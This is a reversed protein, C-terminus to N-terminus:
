DRLYRRLLRLGVYVVVGLLALGGVLNAPTWREAERVAALVPRVAGGPARAAAFLTTLSAITPM